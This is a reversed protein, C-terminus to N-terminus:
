CMPLSLMQFNQIGHWRPIYRVFPLLLCNSIGETSLYSVLLQLFAPDECNHLLLEMSVEWEETVVFKEQMFCMTNM